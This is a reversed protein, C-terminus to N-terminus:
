STLYLCINSHWFICEYGCIYIYGCLCGCIAVYCNPQCLFTHTYMACSYQGRVIYYMTLNNNKPMNRTFISM